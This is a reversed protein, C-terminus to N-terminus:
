GTPKPFTGAQFKALNAKHTDLWDALERYNVCYVEPRRCVDLMFRAVAQNYADHTFTVFHNAAEFPARNGNYTQEFAAIFASYVRDSIVKAQADGADYKPDLNERLSFDVAILPRKMAPQDGFEPFPIGPFGFRWVGGKETPWQNLQRTSSADYRYGRADAVRVLEDLNGELCPTRTGVPKNLFPSGIPTALKNLQDLNTVLNDFQDMEAAWDRALWKTVGNPGCWHGGFHNALEHGDLQAKRLGTVTEQLFEAIPRAGNPAFKIESEGPSHKPGQYATKHEDGLLYVGSLFLSVHASADKAAALWRKLMKDDAAGDFSLVVFQPPRANDFLGGTPLPKPAEPLPAAPLTTAPVTGTAAPVSDSPTAEVDSASTTSAGASTVAGTSVQSPDKRFAGFAVVGVVIALALLAVARPGLNPNPRSPEIM